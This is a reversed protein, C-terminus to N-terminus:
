QHLYIKESTMNIKIINNKNIFDLLRSYVLRELIKSFAPLISIPRYNSIIKKDESKYVPIIKAIKLDDPVIGEVMSKNFIMSLPRALEDSCTKIINVSM